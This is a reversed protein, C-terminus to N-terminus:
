QQLFSPPSSGTHTFSPSGNVRKMRSRVKLLTPKLIYSLEKETHSVALWMDGRPRITSPFLFLLLPLVRFGLETPPLCTIPSLAAPTPHALTHVACTPLGELHAPPPATAWGWRLTTVPFNLEMPYALSYGIWQLNFKATYPFLFPKGGEGGGCSKPTKKIHGM